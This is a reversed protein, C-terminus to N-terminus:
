IEAVTIAEEECVEVCSECGACKEDDVKVEYMVTKGGQSYFLSTWPFQM